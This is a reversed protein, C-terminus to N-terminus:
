RINKFNLHAATKIQRLTKKMELLAAEAQQLSVISFHVTSGAGAQALKPIDAKIVSAIRPYGGTTQHDAMLVICSGGPLLQIIGTDTASSILEIPQKLLLPKGNIRYGMRDSQDSIVFDNKEFAAKSSEELLDWEIGKICRIHNSPEYIKELEIESIHWPFIKNKELLLGTRAFEICDNKQLARGSHGGAAVKLHTSYSNLWKEAHWGGHVALYGKAGKVPQKFQLISNM